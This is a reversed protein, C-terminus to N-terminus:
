RKTRLRYSSYPLPVNYNKEPSSFCEDSTFEPEYESDSAQMYQDVAKSSYFVKGHPETWKYGKGSEEVTWGYQILEENSFPLRSTSGLGRLNHGKFPDGRHM